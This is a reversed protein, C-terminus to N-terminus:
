ILIQRAAAFEHWQKGALQCYKDADGNLMKYQWRQITIPKIQSM